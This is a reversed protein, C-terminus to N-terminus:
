WDLLIGGAFPIVLGTSVRLLIALGLSLEATLYTTSRFRARKVRAAHLKHSRTSKLSTEMSILLLKSNTKIEWPERSQQLACVQVLLSRLQALICVVEVM